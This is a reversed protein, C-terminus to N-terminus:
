SAARWRPDNHFAFHDDKGTMPCAPDACLTIALAIGDETQVLNLWPESPATM